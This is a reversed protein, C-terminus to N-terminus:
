VGFEHADRANPGNDVPSFESISLKSTPVSFQLHLKWDQYQLQMIVKTWGDAFYVILVNRLHVLDVIDETHFTLSNFSENFIWVADLM